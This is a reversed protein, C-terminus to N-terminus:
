KIPMSLSCCGSLLQMGFQTGLLWLDADYGFERDSMGDSCIQERVVLTSTTFAGSSPYTASVGFRRSHSSSKIQTHADAKIETMGLKSFVLNTKGSGSAREKFIKLSWFPETGFCDLQAPIKGSHQEPQRRMFRLAVWGTAEGVNILGWRLSDNARVIEVDTADPSLSGIIEGRSNPHERINLVDGSEVGVVDYLAPWNESAAWCPSASLALLALWLRM